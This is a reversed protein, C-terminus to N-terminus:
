RHNVEPLSLMLYIGRRVDSWHHNGIIARTTQQNQKVM